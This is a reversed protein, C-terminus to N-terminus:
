FVLVTPQKQQKATEHKQFVLMVEEKKVFVVAAGHRGDADGLTLDVVDVDKREPQQQPNNCLTLDEFYCLHSCGIVTLYKSQTPAVTM